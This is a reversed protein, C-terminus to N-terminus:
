ALSDIHLRLGQALPTAPLTAGSQRLSDLAYTRHCLFPASGPEQALHHDVPIEEIQLDVGLIDAILTYYRRSEVVDPGAANFIRGYAATNGALSLILTALDAALIPQQLFHGGGVLALRQGQRLRNILEPDRGHRPLCGLLSGPGYIHCPRVATWHPTKEAALFIEECQRKKFGYGQTAYSLAAEPQPFLRTDPDFVFDTSIFILHAVKPAVIDLDQRADEPQYGICDVALDWNRGAGDLAAAFADPDRRDAVLAKVGAPLPRQGRSLAWVRHGQALAQRALTGSVFGSGGILLIDLVAM